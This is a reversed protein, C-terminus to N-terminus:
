IGGTLEVLLSSRTFGTQNMNM